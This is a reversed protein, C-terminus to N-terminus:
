NVKEELFLDLVKTISEIFLEKQEPKSFSDSYLYKLNVSLQTLFTGENERTAAKKHSIMKIISFVFINNLTHYREPLFKTELNDFRTLDTKFDIKKLVTLYRNYVDKSRHFFDSVTTKTGFQQYQAVVRHLTTADDFAVIMGTVKDKREPTTANDLEHVLQTRMYDSLNEYQSLLEKIEEQSEELTKELSDIHKDIELSAHNSEVLYILFDRKFESKRKEDNFPVDFEVVGDEFTYIQDIAEDTFEKLQSPVLYKIRDELRVVDEEGLAGIRKSNIEERLHKISNMQEMTNLLVSAKASDIEKEEPKNEVLKLETM